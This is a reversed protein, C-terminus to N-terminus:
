KHRPILSLLKKREAKNFLVAFEATAIILMIAPVIGLTQWVNIDYPIIHTAVFYIAAIVASTIAVRSLIRHAYLGVAFDLHVKAVCMIAAFNAIEILILIVFVSYYPAGLKLAIWSLPINMTMMVFETIQYWKMHGSARFLTDIPDHLSRVVAYILVLQTFVTTWEPVEDLWLNLVAYTTCLLTACLVSSIFFNVKSNWFMLSYFEDYEKRTYAMISRPQFSTSMDSVFQAINAQVHVALARATNLGVGGFINLIFNTGNNAVTFGTSGLFNWSAFVTMEKFLVKDRSFKYRAEIGFKRKCYATNIFRIILSVALTLAAYWVVRGEPFFILLAVIGLRLVSEIVAIIAFVDLKENAIILADYPVTLMLVVAALLSLHFVWWADGESGPNINLEPILFLGGIEVATFFLFALLVQITMGISFIKQVEDPRGSAKAVNVYRQISTSFIGRLSSFLVIVSGILGYLGFDYDGLRELLLRSTYFGIVITVAKRCYLFLSNRAIRRKNTESDTM